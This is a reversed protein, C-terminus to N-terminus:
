GWSEASHDNLHAPRGANRASRSRQAVTARSTSPQDSRCARASEMSVAAQAAGLDTEPQPQHLLAQPVAEVATGDDISRSQDAPVNDGGENGVGPMAPEDPAAISEVQMKKRAKCKKPKLAEEALRARKAAEKRAREEAKRAAEETKRKQAEERKAAKEARKRQTEVEKEAKKRTSEAKKAQKDAEAQAKAAMKAREDDRFAPLTLLRAKPMERNSHVVRYPEPPTMATGIGVNLSATNSQAPPPEVTPAPLQVAAAAAVAALAELRPPRPQQADAADARQGQAPHVDPTRHAIVDAASSIVSHAQLAQIHDRLLQASEPDDADYTAAAQELLRMLRMHAAADRGSAVTSGGGVAQEAPADLSGAAEGAQQTGTLPASMQHTNKDAIKEPDLPYIGTKYFASKINSPSIAMDWASKQAAGHTMDAHGQPLALIQLMLSTTVIKLINASDSIRWQSLAKTYYTQIPQMIGIDLPQLIHTTHAPFAIIHVRNDAALDLVDLDLHVGFNDLFLLVGKGDARLDETEPLFITQMWLEFIDRTMYGSEQCIMATNEWTTGKFKEVLANM